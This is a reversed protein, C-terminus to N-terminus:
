IKRQSIYPWVGVSTSTYKMYLIEYLPYRVNNDHLGYSFYLFIQCAFGFWNQAELWRRFDFSPRNSYQDAYNAYRNHIPFQATSAYDLDPFITNDIIWRSLRSPGSEPTPTSLPVVESM